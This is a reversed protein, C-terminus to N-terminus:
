ATPVEAGRIQVYGIKGDHRKVAKALGGNEHQFM